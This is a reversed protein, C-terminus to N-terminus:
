GSLRGGATYQPAKIKISAAAAAEPTSFRQGSISTYVKEGSATTIVQGILGQEKFTEASSKSVPKSVSTPTTPKSVQKSAEQMKKYETLNKAGSERITKITVKNYDVAM